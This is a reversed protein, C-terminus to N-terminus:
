LSCAFECDVGGVLKVESGRNGCHGSVVCGPVRFDFSWCRQVASVGESFRLVSLLCVECLCSGGM